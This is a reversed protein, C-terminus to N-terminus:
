RSNGVGEENVGVVCVLYVYYKFGDSYICVIFFFWWWDYFMLSLWKCICCFFVLYELNSLMRWLLFWLYLLIEFVFNRWLLDKNLDIVIFYIVVFYFEVLEGNVKKYKVFVKVVRM